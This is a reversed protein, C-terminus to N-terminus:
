FCSMYREAVYQIAFNLTAIPFLLPMGVGYMCTVFVILLIGSEKVHMVYEGGSWVKKYAAMSTKKTVYRDKGWKMDMKRHLFPLGWGMGLQVFPMCANICMTKLIIFGVNSYWMPDYDYYPGHFINTIFHPPHETLNANAITLLLGTNLFLVIFVGNTISGLMESKTAEKVWTLLKTIIMKLVINIAIIVFSISSNVALGM